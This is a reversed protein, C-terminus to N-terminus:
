RKDLDHKFRKIIEKFRGSTNVKRIEALLIYELNRVAEKINRNVIWYDYKKAYKVEKEAVRLRKKLLNEEESKRQRLRKELTKRSPPFIFILVARKLFKKKLELAGRVDICFVLSKKKRSAEELFRRPTGYFNGLYQKTELFYGKKKWLLFKKLTFFYYDEGNKERRRPLRTTATLARLFNRRIEKKLFLKKILTSKGSGSPGSVLFIREPLNM